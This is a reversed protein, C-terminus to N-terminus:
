IVLSIRFTHAESGILLTKARRLCKHIGTPTGQRIPWYKILFVAYDVSPHYSTPNEEETAQAAVELVSFM